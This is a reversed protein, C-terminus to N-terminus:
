DLKPLPPLRDYVRMVPYCVNRGKWYVESFEYKYMSYHLLVLDTVITPLFIFITWRRRYTFIAQWLARFILGHLLLTALTVALLLTDNVAVAFTLIVLPSLILGVEALAVLLVLEPRRHLQPYRTQIATSLQESSPKQSSIGLPADSRIFSYHDDITAARAFHAEPTVSRKVSAFGGAQKIAEKTILWCTSLVPPRNFLRRPPAMEWYYRMLQVLPLNGSQPPNLPLVSLMTKDRQILATVLQRVSSRQLRVDVGCFLILTGSAEQYLRDYAQNKALWGESPERGRIFRVGDHAYQKIIEPTRDGSCDDLVIIELKPYDSALMSDLCAELQADENRAPIAVTVSPLDRDNLRLRKPHAAAPSTTHLQRLTSWALLLAVVLQTAALARIYQAPGAQPWSTELGVLIVAQAAALWLATLSVTSRAYQERMRNELVRMLNFVRYAGVTALLVTWLGPRTLLLGACAASLTLLSLIALPARFRWLPRWTLLFEGAWSVALLVLYQMM